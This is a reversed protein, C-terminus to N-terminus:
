PYRPTTNEVDETDQPVPNGSFCRRYPNEHKKKGHIARDYDDMDLDAMVCSIQYDSFGIM